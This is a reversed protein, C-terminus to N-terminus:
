VSGTSPVSWSVTVENAASLRALVNRPLSPASAAPNAFDADEQLLPGEDTSTTVRARFFYRLGNTLETVVAAGDGNRRVAVPGADVWGTDGTPSTTVTAAQENYELSYGTFEPVGVNTPQTIVVTIEGNGPSLTIDAPATPDTTFEQAQAVGTGLVVFAALAGIVAFMAVVSMPGIFKRTKSSM